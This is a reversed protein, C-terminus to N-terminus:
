QVSYRVGYTNVPLLITRGDELPLEMVRTRRDLRYGLEELREEQAASLIGQEESAAPFASPEYVPIQVSEEGAAGDSAFRVLMPQGSSRRTTAPFAPVNRGSVLNTRAGALAGNRAGGEHRPDAHAAGEGSALQADRLREEPPQFATTYVAGEPPRRGLWHGASVGVGLAVLLGAVATWRFSAAARRGSHAAASPPSAAAPLPQEQLYVGCAARSVQQEVFALALQRWGEPAQDLEQLLSRQDQEALEGDVCRQIRLERM